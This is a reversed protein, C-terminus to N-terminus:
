MYSSVANPVSAANVQSLVSASIEVLVSPGTVARAYVFVAVTVPAPREVSAIQEM